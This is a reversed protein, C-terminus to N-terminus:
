RLYQGLAELRQRRNYSNNATAARQAAEVAEDVRATLFRIDDCVVFRGEGRAKVLQPIKWYRTPLSNESYTRNRAAVLLVVSGGEAAHVCEDICGQAGPLAFILDATLGVLKLRERYTEFRVGLYTHPGIDSLGELPAYGLSPVGYRAALVSSLGPIGDSVAGDCILAPLRKIRQLHELIRVMNRADLAYSPRATGYGSFGMILPVPEGEYIKKDVRFIDAIIQHLETLPGVAAGRQMLASRLTPTGVFVKGVGALAYDDVRATRMTTEGPLRYNVGNMPTISRDSQPFQEGYRCLRAYAQVADPLATAM